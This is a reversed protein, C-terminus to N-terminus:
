EAVLVQELGICWQSQWPEDVVAEVGGGGGGGGEGSGEGGGETQGDPKVRAKSM